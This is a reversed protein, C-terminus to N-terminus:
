GIILWSVSTSFAVARNLYIRFRGSGPYNARVAAVHVGSRYTMLNAFLLPTGALGGRSRVDVDVYAKGALITARGSRDPLQVRGAARLGVQGKSSVSGLLAVGSVPSPTASGVHGMLGTGTTSWGRVAVSSTSSASMGMNSTSSCEVAIGSTASAEVGVGSETQAAVAAGSGSTAWLATAQTGTVLKLINVGNGTMTTLAAVPNDVETLLATSVAAAPDPGGLKTVAIASAAGAAAALISRRSRRADPDLSM